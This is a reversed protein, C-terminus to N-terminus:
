DGAVGANSSFQTMPEVIIRNQLAVGRLELPEFLKIAMVAGKQGTSRSGDSTKMWHRTLTEATSVGKPATANLHDAYAAPTGYVLPSHPRRTDYDAIWAAIIQRAEDTTNLSTPTAPCGLL